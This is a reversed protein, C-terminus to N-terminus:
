DRGPRRARAPRELRTAAPTVVDTVRDVLPTASEAVGGVVGVVGGVTELVGGAPGGGVPLTGTVSDVVPALSDTPGGM